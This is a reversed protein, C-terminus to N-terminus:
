FDLNNPKLEELNGNVVPFSGPTGWSAMRRRRRELEADRKSDDRTEQVHESETDSESKSYKAFTQRSDSRADRLGLQM